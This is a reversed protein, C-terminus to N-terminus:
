RKAEATEARAVLAVVVDELTPDAPTCHSPGCGDSELVRVAREAETDGEVRLRLRGGYLVVRDAGWHRRLAAHARSADPTEVQVMAGPFRRRLEEPTGEALRRGHHLLCIRHCREAEDLYPTTVLIGVGEDAMRGLLVWFEGRSVPDVGTSPEDLLLLDPQHVLACALALKKKMGGSLQQALRRGFPALGTMALLDRRRPAFHRVGHLRAFFDMNEDVTLDGYLTFEQALYGLRRKIAAPERALDLGAVTVRGREPRLLGCCLRVATTKGSGDPGVLGMMEGRPVRLRLDELAFAGLRLGLGQADLAIDAGEDM